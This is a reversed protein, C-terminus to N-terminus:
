DCQFAPAFLSVLAFDSASYSLINIDGIDAVIYVYDDIIFGNLVPAQYTNGGLHINTETHKGILVAGNEDFKFLGINYTDNETFPFLFLKRQTDVNLIDAQDHYNYTKNYKEGLYYETESELLSSNGYINIKMGYYEIYGTEDSRRWEPTYGFLKQESFPIIYTPFYVDAQLPIEKVAGSESFEAAFLFTNKPTEAHMAGIQTYYGENETFLVGIANESDLTKYAESIVNLNEDLVAFGYKGDKALAIRLYGDKEYFSSPCFIQGDVTTSGTYCPVGNEFTFRDIEAYYKGDDETEANIKYVDNKSAFINFNGDSVCLAKAERTELNVCSTVFFSGASSNEPFYISEAPIKEENFGAVPLAKAADEETMKTGYELYSESGIGEDGWIGGYNWPISYGTTIKLEDGDIRIDWLGGTQTYTEKQELTGNETVEYFYIYVINEWGYSVGVRWKRVVLVTNGWVLIGAYKDEQQTNLPLVISDTETVIGDNLSYVKLINRKFFYIHNGYTVISQPTQPRNASADTDYYNGGNFESAMPAPNDFGAIAEELSEGETVVKKNINQCLVKYVTDYDDYSTLTKEASEKETDSTEASVDTDPLSVDAPAGSCDDSEQPAPIKEGCAVM